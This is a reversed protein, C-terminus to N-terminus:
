TVERVVKEGGEGLVAITVDHAHLLQLAHRVVLHTHNHRTVHTELRTMSDTTRQLHISLSRTHMSSQARELRAGRLLQLLLLLLHRTARTLARRARSHRQKCGGCSCVPTAATGCMSQDATVLTVSTNM